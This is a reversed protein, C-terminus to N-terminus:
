AETALLAVYYYTTGSTNLQKFASESNSWSVTNEGWTLSEIADQQGPQNYAMTSYTGRIAFFHYDQAVFLALPMGDFSLTNQGGYAGATGTGVYSGYVIRCNGASAATQAIAALAADITENDSNFDDMMIRDSKGWRNLQYHTTKNM